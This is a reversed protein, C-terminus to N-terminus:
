RKVNRRRQQNTIHDTVELNSRRCDLTQHNMHDVHLESSVGGALGMIFRHLYVKRGEITARAYPQGPKKNKGKAIHAYWKYRKVRLFDQPDVLAFYKGGSLSIARPSKQIM